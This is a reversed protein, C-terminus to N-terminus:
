FWAEDEPKVEPAPEQLATHETPRSPDKWYKLRLAARDVSGSANRTFESVAEFVMPVSNTPLRSECWTILDAPQVSRNKARVVLVKVDENWRQSPIGIAAADSVGPHARLTSEVRSPWVRDMQDLPIAEDVRDIVYLCGARVLGADGTRLWGDETLTAVSDEPRRWYGKMSRPSRLWIEGIVGDPVDTEWLEDVIRVRVGPLTRGVGLARGMEDGPQDDPKVVCVPGGAESLSYFRTLPTGYRREAAKLVQLAPAPGAWAVVLPKHAPPAPEKTSTTTETARLAAPGLLLHTVKHHGVTERTTARAPVTVLHSGAAMAEIAWAAGYIQGFPSAALVVSTADMACIHAVEAHAGVSRHTFVVQRPRGKTGSTPLQLAPDGGLPTHSPPEPDFEDLWNAYDLTEDASETLLIRRDEEVAPCVAFLREANAAEAVLVKAMADTVAAHFPLDPMDADILVPVCGVRMAGIVLEPWVPLDGVLAVRDGGVLGESALGTAVRDALVDLESWTITAKGVSFAPDDPRERAWKLALSPLTADGVSRSSSM